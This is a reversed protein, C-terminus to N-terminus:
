CQLMQAYVTFSQYKVSGTINLLVTLSEAVVLALVYM